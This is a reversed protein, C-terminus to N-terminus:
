LNLPRSFAPGAYRLEQITIHEKKLLDPSPIFMFYIPIKDDELADRVNKNKIVILTPHYNAYPVPQDLQMIYWNPDDGVKIKKLLIGKQPLKDGLYKNSKPAFLRLALGTYDFDERKPSDTEFNPLSFMRGPRYHQFGKFKPLRIRFRKWVGKRLDIKHLVISIYILFGGVIASKYGIVKNGEFSGYYYSMLLFELMLIGLFSFTLLDQQFDVNFAQNTQTYFSSNNLANNKFYFWIHISIIFFILTMLYLNNVAPSILWFDYFGHCLAALLFGIIPLLIKRLRDKYKFRALILAYALVSADFMHGVTSTIARVVINGSDQLYSLNEAFAFGLAAMSAYLIYDFPEKLKRTFFAFLLWPIMKVLEESGGIIAFCYLFDNFIEGNIDFNWIYNATDYIPICFYTFVAGLLFVIIIDRWKEPNHIDMSRIFLMWTLSVLLASLFTFFSPQLIRRELVSKFYNVYHGNQFYYSIRYRVKIHEFGGKSQMVSDKKQLDFKDYSDVLIAYSDNHEPNIKIEKSAYIAASPYDLYNFYHFAKLFNVYPLEGISDLRTLDIPHYSCLYGAYEECLISKYSDREKYKAITKQCNFENGNEAIADIYNFQLEVSDPYEDALMELGELVMDPTEYKEGIRIYSEPGRLWLEPVFLNVVILPIITMGSLILIKKYRRFFPRKREGPQIITGRYVFAILFILSILAYIM